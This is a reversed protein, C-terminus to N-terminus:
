YTIPDWGHDSSKEADTILSESQAIIKDLAEEISIAKDEVADSNGEGIIVKGVSEPKQYWGRGSLRAM